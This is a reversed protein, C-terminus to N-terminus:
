PAGWFYYTATYEVRATEGVHSAECGSAPEVGGTTEVRQIFRVRALVGGAAGDASTPEGKVLLWPVAGPDHAVKQLVSGKVSSKDAALEWTPGDFHRGIPNGDDGYLTADPGQLSWKPKSASDAAADCRYIQAGRAHARLVVVASADPVRLTDPLNTPGAVAHTAPAACGVLCALPLLAIPTRM